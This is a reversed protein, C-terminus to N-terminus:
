ISFLLQLLEQELATKLGGSKARSDLDILLNYLKILEEETFKKAQSELSIKRFPAGVFTGAKVELLQQVQWMLMTLLYLADTQVCTEEFLQVLKENQNNKEWSALFQWIKEKQPFYKKNAKVLLKESAPTIKKGEWLIIREESEQLLNILQDRVKSKPRSLLGNIVILKGTAFFDGQSTLSFFREQDLEKGELKFVSLGNKKAEKVEDAVAQYSADVDEGHYVIVTM